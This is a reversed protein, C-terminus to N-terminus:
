FSARLRSPSSPRRNWHHSRPHLANWVSLTSCSLNETTRKCVLIENQEVTCMIREWSTSPLNSIASKWLWLPHHGRTSAPAKRPIHAQHASFGPTQSPHWSAIAPKRVSVPGLKQLDKQTFYWTHYWWELCVDVMMETGKKKKLSMQNGSSTVCRKVSNLQVQKEYLSLRPKATQENNERKLLFLCRHTNSAATYAELFTDAKSGKAHPHRTHNSEGYFIRRLHVRVHEGGDMRGELSCCRNVGSMGVRPIDSPRFLVIRMSLM